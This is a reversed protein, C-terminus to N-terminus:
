QRAKLTLQSPTRNIPLQAITLLREADAQVTGKAAVKGEQTLEWTCTSGEAAKFKQVRRLTVNAISETPFPIASKIEEPSLLRLEMTFTEAFDEINKWRFFANIQGTADSAAGEPALWPAKADSTADTFAPYAENKKIMLWPFSFALDCNSEIRQR